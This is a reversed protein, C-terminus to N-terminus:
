RDYVPLGDLMQADADFVVMRADARGALRLVSMLSEPMGRHLYKQFLRTSPIGEVQLLHSDTWPTALLKVGIAPSYPIRFAVFLFHTPTDIDALHALYHFADETIHRASIEWCRGYIGQEFTLQRAVERAADESYLDGVHVRRGNVNEGVVAHVVSHVIGEDRCWGQLVRSVEHGETVLAYDINFLCARQVLQDDTLRKQSKHLARWAPPCDDEYTILLGREIRLRHYGRDFPNRADLTPIESM